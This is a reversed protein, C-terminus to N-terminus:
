KPESLHNILTNIRTIARDIETSRYYTTEGFQNQMPPQGATSFQHKTWDVDDFCAKIENAIKQRENM